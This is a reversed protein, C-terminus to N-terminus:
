VNAFGSPESLVSVLEAGSRTFPASPPQRLMSAVSSAFASPVSEGVATGEVSINEPPPLPGIAVMAVTSPLFSAM